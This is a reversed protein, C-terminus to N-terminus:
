IGTQDSTKRGTPNKGELKGRITEKADDIAWNRMISSPLKEMAALFQEWTEVTAYRGPPDIFMLGLPLKTLM